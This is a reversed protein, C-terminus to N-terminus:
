QDNYTQPVEWKTKCRTCADHEQDYIVVMGSHCSPCTEQHPTYRPDPKLEKKPFLKDAMKQFLLTIM